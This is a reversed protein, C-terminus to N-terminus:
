TRKLSLPLGYVVPAAGILMRLRCVDRAATLSACTVDDARAYDLWSKLLKDAFRDIDVDTVDWLNAIVCPSFCSLTPM